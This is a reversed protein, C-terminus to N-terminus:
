ISYGAEKTHLPRKQTKLKEPQTVDNHTADIAARHEALIEKRPITSTSVVMRQMAPTGPDEAPPPIANYADRDQYSCSM